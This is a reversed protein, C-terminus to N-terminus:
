FEGGETGTWRGKLRVYEIHGELLGLRLEHILRQAELAEKTRPLFSGELCEEFCEACIWKRRFQGAWEEVATLSVCCPKWQQCEWCRKVRLRGFMAGM